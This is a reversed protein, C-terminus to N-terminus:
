EKINFHQCFVTEGKYSIDGFEPQWINVLGNFIEKLRELNNLENNLPSITLSCYEAFKINRVNFLISLSNSLEIQDHTYLRVTKGVRKQEIEYPAESFAKLSPHFASLYAITQEIRSIQDTNRASFQQWNLHIKYDYNQERGKLNDFIMDM